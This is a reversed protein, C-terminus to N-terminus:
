NNEFVFGAGNLVFVFFLEAGGGFFITENRQIRLKGLFHRGAPPALRRRSILDQVKRFIFIRVTNECSSM